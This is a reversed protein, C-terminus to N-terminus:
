IIVVLYNLVLKEILGIVLVLELMKLKHNLNKSDDIRVEGWGPSDSIDLYAEDKIDNNVSSGNDSDAKDEVVVEFWGGVGSGCSTNVDSSM